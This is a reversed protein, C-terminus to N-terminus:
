EMFPLKPLPVGLLLGFVGYVGLVFLLSVLLLLGGRRYGLVWAIYFMFLVSPIIFGAYDLALAYICMGIAVFVPMVYHGATFTIDKAKGARHQLITNGLLLLSLVCFSIALLLPFRAPMKDYNIATAYIVIGLAFFTVSLWTNIKKLLM